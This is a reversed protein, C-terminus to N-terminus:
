ASFFNRAQVVDQQIAQILEAPSSFKKNERVFQLLQVTIEQGVLDLEQDLLHTEAREDPDEFTTPIGIFTLGPYTKGRVTTQSIYVGHPLYQALHVNATPYGLQKGRSQNKYVVGSFSGLIIEPKNRLKVSSPKGSM